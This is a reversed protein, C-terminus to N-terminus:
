SLPIIDFYRLEIFRNISQNSYPKNAPGSKKFEKMVITNVQGEREQHLIELGKLSFLIITTKGNGKWMKMGNALNNYM